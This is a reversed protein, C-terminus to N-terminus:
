HFLRQAVLITEFLPIFIEHGLYINVSIINIKGYEVCVVLNGLPKLSIISNTMPICASPFRQLHTFNTLLPTTGRTFPSTQTAM